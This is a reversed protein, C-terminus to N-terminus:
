STNRTKTSHLMDIRSIIIKSLPVQAFKQKIFKVTDSMVQYVFLVNLTLDDSIICFSAYKLERQEKFYVVVLHLTCQQKNWHYGQVEDQMLFQHNEAFDGLVIVEEVVLSM